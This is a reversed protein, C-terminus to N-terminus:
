AVDGCYGERDGNDSCSFNRLHQSVTPAGVFGVWCLGWILSFNPFVFYPIDTEIIIANALNRLSGSGCM